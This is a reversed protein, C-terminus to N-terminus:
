KVTVKVKVTKGNATVSITATGKKVGKVVGKGTVTAIKKNSTKYTIKSNPFATAKLSATKGKKLTIKTKPVSVVKNSYDCIEAYAEKSEWTSDDWPATIVRTPIDRIDGEFDQEAVVSGDVIFQVKDLYAFGSCKAFGYVYLNNWCVAKVESPFGEEDGNEKFTHTFDATVDMKYFDGDSKVICCDDSKDSLYIDDMRGIRVWGDDSDNIQADAGFGIWLGDDKQSKLVTKPVYLTVKAQVSSVSNTKYYFDDGFNNVDTWAKEFPDEFRGVDQFDLPIAAVKTKTAANVEVASTAFSASLSVSVCAALVFSLIKKKM